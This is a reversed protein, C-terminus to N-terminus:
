HISTQKNIIKNETEVIKITGKDRNHIFVPFTWDVFVFCYLLVIIYCCETVYYLLVFSMGPMGAYLLFDICDTNWEDNMIREYQYSQCSYEM